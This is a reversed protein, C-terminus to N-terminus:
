ISGKRRLTYSSVSTYFDCKHKNATCVQWTQDSKLWIHVFILYRKLLQTPKGQNITHTNRFLLVGTKEKILSFNTKREMMEAGEAKHPCIHPPSLLAKLVKANEM